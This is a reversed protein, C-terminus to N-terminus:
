PRAMPMLTIVLVTAAVISVEVSPVAPASLTSASSFDFITPIATPPATELPCPEAIAPDTPTFAMLLERSAWILPEVTALAVDTVTLASSAAVIIATAPLRPTPLLPEPTPTAIPQFRTLSLTLAYTSPEAIVVELPATFTSAVEFENRTFTPAAPAPLECPEPPAPVSTILEIALETSAWIPAEERTVAAPSTFTTALSPALM